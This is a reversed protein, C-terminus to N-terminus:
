FFNIGFKQSNNYYNSHSNFKKVDQHFSYSSSNGFLIEFFNLVYYM